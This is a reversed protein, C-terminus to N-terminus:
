SSAFALAAAGAALVLAAIRAVSRPLLRAFVLAVAMGGFPVLVRLAIMGDSSGEALAPGAVIQAAAAGFAAAPALGPPCAVLLAIAGVWSSTVMATSGTWGAPGVVAQAGALAALSSSGWRGIVGAAVLVGVGGAVADSAALGLLVGLLVLDGTSTVAM